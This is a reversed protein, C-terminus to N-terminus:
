VSLPLSNLFFIISPRMSVNLIFRERLGYSLATASAVYLTKLVSNTYGLVNSVNSCSSLLIIRNHENTYDYEVENKM